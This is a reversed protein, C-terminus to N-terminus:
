LFCVPPAHPGQARFMQEESWLLWLLSKYSDKCPSMINSLPRLTFNPGRAKLYMAPHPPRGAIVTSPFHLRSGRSCDTIYIYVYIHTHTYIYVYICVYIYAQHIYMYTSIYIYTYPCIHIYLMTYISWICIHNVTESGCQTFPLPGHPCPPNAAARPSMLVVWCVCFMNSEIYVLNNQQYILLM